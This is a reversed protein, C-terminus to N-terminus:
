AEGGVLVPKGTVLSKQQAQAAQFVTKIQNADMAALTRSFSSTAIEVLEHGLESHGRRYAELQALYLGLVFGAERSAKAAIDSM